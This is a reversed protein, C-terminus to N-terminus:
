TNYQLNGKYEGIGRYNKLDYDDMDKEYQNPEDKSIESHAQDLDTMSQFKEEENDLPLQKDLIAQKKQLYSM